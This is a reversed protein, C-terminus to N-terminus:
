GRTLCFPFSACRPHSSTRETQGISAMFSHIVYEITRRGEDASNHLGPFRNNAIEQALKWDRAGASKNTLYVARSHAKRASLATAITREM